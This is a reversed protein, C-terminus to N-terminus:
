QVDKWPVLKPIARLLEDLAKSRYGRYAERFEEAQGSDALQFGFRECFQKREGQDMSEILAIFERPHRLSWEGTAMMVQMGPGADPGNQLWKRLPRPDSSREYAALKRETDIEAREVIDGIAYLFPQFNFLFCPVGLLGLVSLAVVATRKM